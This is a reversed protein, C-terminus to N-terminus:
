CERNTIGQEGLGQRDNEARENGAGSTGVDRWGELYQQGVLSRVDRRGTM